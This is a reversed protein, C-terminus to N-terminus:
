IKAQAPITILWIPKVQGEDTLVMYLAKLLHSLINGTNAFFSFVDNTNNPSFQKWKPCRTTETWSLNNVLFFLFNVYLFLFNLTLGLPLGTFERWQVEKSFFVCGCKSTAVQTQASQTPCEDTNGTSVYYCMGWTLFCYAFSSTVHHLKLSPTTTM